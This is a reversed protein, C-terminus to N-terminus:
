KEELIVDCLSTYDYELLSIHSKIVELSAVMGDLQEEALFEEIKGIAPLARDHSELFEQLTM